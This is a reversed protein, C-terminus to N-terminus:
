KNYLVITKYLLYTNINRIINLTIKNRLWLPMVIDTQGDTMKDNTMKIIQIFALLGLNTHSSVTFTQSFPTKM